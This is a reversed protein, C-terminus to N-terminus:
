AGSSKENKPARRIETRPDQRQQTDPMQERHHHAKQGDGLDSEKRSGGINRDAPRHHYERFATEALRNGRKANADEVGDGAYLEHRVLM